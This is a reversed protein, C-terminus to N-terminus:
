EAKAENVDVILVNPTRTAPRVEGGPLVVKGNWVVLPTTVPAWISNNPHEIADDKIVTSVQAAVSWSDTAINYNLIDKSFGPHKEKLEAATAAFKGDDGGFILLGTDKIHEANNLEGIVEVGGIDGREDVGSVTYAPSPAAVVPSPMDKIKQWGKEPVYKFADNLYERKGENLATGSFLYFAGDATGAVSLMRPLGPWAPLVQWGKEPALLNLSWFNDSAVLDTANKQGGAIYVVDGILVGCSNALPTPLDPLKEILLGKDKYRLLFADAHHGSVNSGGICLLADKWSISVGYGMPAPLKGARMWQGHEKDLVFVDDHWVKTSGTWPAGGDPFNAGGAVILAGNSVGAYSGAFGVPDPIQPLQNWNYKAPIEETCSVTITSLLVIMAKKTLANKDM